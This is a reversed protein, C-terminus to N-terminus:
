GVSNPPLIPHLWSFPVDLVFSSTCSEDNPLLSALFVCSLTQWSGVDTKQQAHWSETSASCPIGQPSIWIRVVFKLLFRLPVWVDITCPAPTLSTGDSLFMFNDWLSHHGTSVTCGALPILAHHSDFEVKNLYVCALDTLFPFVPFECILSDVWLTLCAIRLVNTFLVRFFFVASSFTEMWIQTLLLSSEFFVSELFM